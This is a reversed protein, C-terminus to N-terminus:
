QERTSLRSPRRPPHASLEPRVADWPASLEGHSAVLVMSTGCADGSSNAAAPWSLSGSAGSLSRTSRTAGANEFGVLTVFGRKGM